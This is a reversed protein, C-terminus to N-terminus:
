KKDAAAKKEADKIAAIKAKAADKVSVRDEGKFYEKVQDITTCKGIAAIADEASLKKPTDPKKTKDDQNGAGGAGAASGAGSGNPSGSGGPPNSNQDKPPKESEDIWVAAAISVLRDGDKKSSPTFEQGSKIQGKAGITIIAKMKM